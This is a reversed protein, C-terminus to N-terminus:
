KVSVVAAVGQAEILAPLLTLTLLTGPLVLPFIALNRTPLVSAQLM